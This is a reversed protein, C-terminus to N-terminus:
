KGHPLVKAGDPRLDGSPSVNRYLTQQTIGVERCLDSIKTEKQGMAAMALRIKAPTM